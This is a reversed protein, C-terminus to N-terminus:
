RGAQTPQGRTLRRIGAVLSAITVVPAADSLPIVYSLTAVPLLSGGGAALTNISWSALAVLFVLLYTLDSM